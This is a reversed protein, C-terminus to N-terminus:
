QLLENLGPRKRYTERRNKLFHIILSGLANCLNQFFKKEVSRSGKVVPTRVVCIVRTPVGVGAGMCVWMGMGVCGVFLCISWMSITLQKLIHFMYNPLSGM